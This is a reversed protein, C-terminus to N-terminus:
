KKKGSVIVLGQKDLWEHYKELYYFIQQGTIELMATDHSKSESLVHKIVNDM